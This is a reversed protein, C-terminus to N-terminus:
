AALNRSYLSNLRLQQEKACRALSALNEDAYPTTRAIDLCLAIGQELNEKYERLANSDISGDGSLLKEFYDVNLVLEQAFMHPREKPVLSPGRGYIHDVMEKLTYLRDFWALNPGPCVAPPADTPSKLGLKILVGNGLHTCICTKKVVAAKLLEKKRPPLDQGDIEALKLGQYQRSALCLPIESFETNTVAFGKGCPSGPTGRRWQEETWIESGTGKVTNFPIDLPSINSLYLDDMKAQRLLERTVDDVNTVEPVLLFPSGWGTRDAGFEERLRRAEGCTGIGGQVTLFPEPTAFAPYAWGMKAYYDGVLSSASGKLQEWKERFEKLIWPLLKGRSPFAHGGCNLGSEVRFETVELGRKALLKAQVSASRFDSVKLVIKKRLEGKSDRYFDRFQAISAFLKKSMGASLVVSSDLRSEAFGRLAAQADSFEDGLPKGQPDHNARDLKVMINVDISGPRMRSGLDRALSEREAGPSLAKLRQYDAKLPSEEPLLQFYADKDNNGFFPEQRIAEMKRNVLDLVLDLYATIRKARGDRAERPIATCPLNNARCYYHRLQELLFDDVLSIVSSIGLPAVRIPTDISHGIGMVPIHFSHLENLM